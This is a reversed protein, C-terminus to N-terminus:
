IQPSGHLAAVARARSEIQALKTSAYVSAEVMLRKAEAEPLDCLTELTQDHNRLYEEIFSQALTAQPDQIPEPGEKLTNM